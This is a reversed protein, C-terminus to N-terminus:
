RVNPRVGATHHLSLTTRRIKHQGKAGTRSRRFSSGQADISVTIVFCSATFPQFLSIVRARYAGSSNTRPVNVDSGGRLAGQVCTDGYVRVDIPAGVVPDGSADVVTGYVLASTTCIDCRPETPGSCAALMLAVLIIARHNM